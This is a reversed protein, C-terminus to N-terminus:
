KRVTNTVRMRRGCKPCEVGTWGDEFQGRLIVKHGCGGSKTECEVYRIVAGSKIPIIRPAEYKTM